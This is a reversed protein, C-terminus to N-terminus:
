NSIKNSVCFETRNLSLPSSLFKKQCTFVTGVNEFNELVKKENAPVVLNLGKETCVVTNNYDNIPSLM